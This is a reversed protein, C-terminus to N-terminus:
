YKYMNSLSNNPLWQGARLNAYLASNDLDVWTFKLGSYFKFEAPLPMGWNAQASYMRINSSMDGKLTDRSLIQKEPNRMENLMSLTQKHEHLLYDFSFDATQDKDNKYNLLLGGSIARQKTYTRSQTHLSSDVPSNAKQIYTDTSGPIHKTFLTGNTSVEFSFNDNIDYNMGLRAWDGRNHDKMRSNQNINMM